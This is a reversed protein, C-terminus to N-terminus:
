ACKEKEAKLRRVTLSAAASFLLLLGGAAFLSHYAQGTVDTSTILGIHAALTRMAQLPTRAYQVANGALMTPILTDGVARGFGLTAASLLARRSAPLAIWALSQAPSIGLAATTLATREEVARLAGDIVLTMTPLIQLSLVLGASLWCLGSGGLSRRVLPVLLFVSVFGYVVTPVATMFRIVAGLARAAWRPSLGHMFCACGVSLCWSLALASLSLVLTAWIMPAIGYQGADPRWTDGMLAAADGGLAAQLASVIIFGFVSAMLAGVCAAAASLWLPAGDQTM